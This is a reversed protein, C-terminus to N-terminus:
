HSKEAIQRADAMLEAAYEQVARAADIWRQAARYQDLLASAQRSRVTPNM